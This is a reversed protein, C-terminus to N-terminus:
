YRSVARAKGNMVPAPSRVWRAVTVFRRLQKVFVTIFRYSFRMLDRITMSTATSTSLPAVNPRACSVVPV